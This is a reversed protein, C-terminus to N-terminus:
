KVGHYSQYLTIVDQRPYVGINIELYDNQYYDTCSTKHGAQLGHLKKTYFKGGAHAQLELMSQVM